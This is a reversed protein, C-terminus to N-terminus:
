TAPELEAARQRNRQARRRRIWRIAGVIIGTVGFVWAFITMWYLVEPGRSLGNVKTAAVGGGLGIMSMYYLGFGVKYQLWRWIGFGYLGATMPIAMLAAYWGGHGVYYMVRNLQHPYRIAGYGLGGTAMLMALKVQWELRRFKYLLSRFSGKQLQQKLQLQQMRSNETAEASRIAQRNAQRRQEWNM